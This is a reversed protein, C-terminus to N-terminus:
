YSHTYSSHILRVAFRLPMWSHSTQVALAPSHTRMLVCQMPLATYPLEIEIGDSGDSGQAHCFTVDGTSSGLVECPNFEYVCCMIM